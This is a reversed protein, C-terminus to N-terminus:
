EDEDEWEDSVKWRSDDGDAPEIGGKEHLQSVGANVDTYPLGTRMMVEDETLGGAPGDAICHYIVRAIRSVYTPFWVQPTFPATQGAQEAERLEDANIREQLEEDGTTKRSKNAAPEENGLASATRKLGATAAAPTSDSKKPRGRGRKATATTGNETVQPLASATVVSKKRPRGRPRGTSPPVVVDYKRPRGRARTAKPTAAAAAKAETVPAARDAKPKVASSATSPLISKPRGRTRKVLPSALTQTAGAGILNPPNGLHACTHALLAALAREVTRAQHPEGCIDEGSSKDAITAQYYKEELYRVVVDVDSSPQDFGMFNYNALIQERLGSIEAM